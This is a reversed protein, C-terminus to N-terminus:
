RNERKKDTSPEKWFTVKAEKEDRYEKEWLVWNDLLRLAKSANETQVQSM